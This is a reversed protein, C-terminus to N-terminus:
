FIFSLDFVHTKLPEMGIEPGLEQTYYAYNFKVLWVDIGFGATVYGQNLGGRLKVIDFLVSKELGLHTKKFFSTDPSILQYDAAWTFDGVFDSIMPVWNPLQTKAAFGVTGVM